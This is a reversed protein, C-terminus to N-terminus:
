PLPILWIQVWFMVETPQTDVCYHWSAATWFDNHFLISLHSAIWLLALLTIFLRLSRITSHLNSSNCIYIKSWLFCDMSIQCTDAECLPPFRELHPLISLQSHNYSLSYFYVEAWYLSLFNFFFILIHLIKHAFPDNASVRESSFKFALM